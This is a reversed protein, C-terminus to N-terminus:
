RGPVGRQRCPFLSRRQGHHRRRYHCHGIEYQRDESASAQVANTGAFVSRTRNIRKGGGAASGRELCPRCKGFGFDLRRTWTDITTGAIHPTVVVNDRGLLPSDTALPEEEFVDLGAGAIEGKDLADILAAEDVVPGRATNVFIATPKMAAFQATSFMGRTAPLLPTHVSIVDSTRILEDLEMRKASLEKEVEPPAGMPDFYAVHALFGNVNRATERGIHGFGVIGVQKDRLERMKLAERHGLWEGEHLKNHHLPLKKFVSLMLLVAMEAVTPANAGGNNAVPINMAKFRELDLRDYGASLVQFLKVKEAVDFDDFGMGYAIIYDAQGVKERRDADSLTSDCLTLTFGDPTQAKADELIRDPINSKNFLLLINETDAM